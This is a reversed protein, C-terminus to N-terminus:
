CHHSPIGLHLLIEYSKAEGSKTMLWAMLFKVQTNRQKVFNVAWAQHEDSKNPVKSCTKLEKREEKRLTAVVKM